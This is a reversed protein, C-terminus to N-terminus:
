RTPLLEEIQQPAIPDAIMWVRTVQPMVGSRWARAAAPPLMVSRATAPQQPGMEFAREPRRRRAWGRLM